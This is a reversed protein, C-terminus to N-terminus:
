SSQRRELTFHFDSGRNIESVAWIKGGHLEVIRKSIALGLGTGKNSPDTELRYFIEFIQFASQMDFGKGQDAITFHWHDFQKQFRIEVINKSDPRSFKCANDLLNLFLQELQLPDGIVEPLEQYQIEINHAIGSNDLIENKIRTVLNQLSVRQRTPLERPSLKSFNLLGDILNKMRIGGAQIFEAWELAEPDLDDKIKSILLQTYSTMHRLPTQLDHAAVYAFKELDQNSLRLRENASELGGFNKANSVDVFRVLTRSQVNDQLIPHMHIQVHVKAKAILHNLEAGLLEEPHQYGLTRAAVANAKVIHGNSQVILLGEGSVELLSQTLARLYRTELATVKLRSSIKQYYHRGCVSGLLAIFSLVGALAFFNSKM